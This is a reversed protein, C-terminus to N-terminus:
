MEVITVGDNGDPHRMAVGRYEKLKFKVLNRLVGTGKGHVIEVAGVNTLIARDMFQELTKIADEHRMGRIDLKVETNEPKLIHAVVKNRVVVDDQPLVELESLPLTLRLNGMLIVAKNKDLKEIEGEAGSQVVRVRVGVAPQIGAAKVQSVHLEEKISTNEETLKETDIKKETLLEELKAKLTPSPQNHSTAKIEKIAEKVAQLAQSQDKLQIEKSQLKLKKKQMELEQHLLDYSKILQDLKAQTSELKERAEVFDKRESELNIILDDFNKEAEGMRFKAHDLVKQSLGNKYAIEFAYSSGPKGVKMQYTPALTNKDFIMAGNVIGTNKFAYLKLNTYHTTIIGWVGKNHITKLISEAIAGGAKPETGSGFEDIVVLSLEDAEEMIEKALQLRSSYTSLDDELSQQDGIDAFIKQQIGIESGEMCPILMGSQTMLQLLGVTKMCVSKGGANPGSILLIRNKGHFHLDFPITKKGEKSNKLFLLPHFAGEIKYLPTPHLLPQTARMQNALHAKAQILDYKLLIIQYMTLWNISPRLKDSTAKLIRYIERKAENEFEIIQNNLDIVEEPEIYTTKGTASEDHIIGRIQRKYESPVTLVRRNNRLTEVNDALWGKAMYKNAVSRFITDLEKRKSIQVRRIRMLEPSADPRINGEADLVKDIMAYLDENPPIGDLIQTLFPFEEKPDRRQAFFRFIDRVIKLQHGVNKLSEESLVYDEIALLKLDKSVDKFRYLPFVMGMDLGKKFEQVENLGLQVAKYDSSPTLEIAALAGLDSLCCESLLYLVKDFELKSFIDSHCYMITAFILGYCSLRVIM